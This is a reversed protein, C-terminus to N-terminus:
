LIKKKKKVQADHIGFRAFDLHGHLANQEGELFVAVSGGGRHRQRQIHRHAIAADLAALGNQQFSETTSKRPTRRQNTELGPIRADVKKLSVNCPAASYDLSGRFLGMDTM